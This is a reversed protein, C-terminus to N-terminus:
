GEKEIKEIALCLRGINGPRRANYYMNGQRGSHYGSVDNPDDTIYGAQEYENRNIYIRFKGDKEWVKGVGLEEAKMKIEDRKMKREGKNIM